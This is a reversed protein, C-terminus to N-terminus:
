KEGIHVIEPGRIKEARIYALGAKTFLEKFEKTSYLKVHEPEKLKMISDFLKTGWWDATPDLVYTRGGKRLLRRFESLAKDPHLYHHFSNTCIIVDFFNDELPLSEANAITFHVNAKGSFNERAKEIMKPSLDIGHFEGADNALRQAERIAWGTGCGVDLFHIGEKIQLLSVVKRQADRLFENKWGKADLTEAWKDWKAINGEIHQSENKM